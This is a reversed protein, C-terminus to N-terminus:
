QISGYFAYITDYLEHNVMQQRIVKVHRVLSKFRNLAEHKIILTEYKAGAIQLLNTYLNDIDKLDGNEKRAIEGVLAWFYRNQDISRKKKKPEITILYEGDEMNFAVPSSIMAQNGIFKTEAITKM